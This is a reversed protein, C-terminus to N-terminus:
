GRTRMGIYMGLLVATLGLTLNAAINLAGLHWDGDQTHTVTEMGFTSFTTLSGLFGSGLALHLRRHTQDLGHAILWGLLFCGAVNVVLTGIPFGSGLFKQCAASVGTRALAGVAAFGSIWLIDVILSM